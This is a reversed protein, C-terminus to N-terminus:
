VEGVLIVTFKPRFGIRKQSNHRRLYKEIIIKDGLFEPLLVKCKLKKEVNGVSSDYICDMDVHSQNTNLLDVRLHSGKEAMWQRNGYKLIFYQCKTEM